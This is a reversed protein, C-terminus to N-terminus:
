ILHAFQDYPRKRQHGLANLLADRRYPVMRELISEFRRAAVITTNMRSGAVPPLVAVAALLMGRLRVRRLNRRIFNFDAYELTLRESLFAIHGALDGRVQRCINILDDDHSTRVVHRCQEALVILRMLHVSLEFRAGLKRRWTPIPRM